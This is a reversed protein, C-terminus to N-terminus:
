YAVNVHFEIIGFSITDASARFAVPIAPSISPAHNTWPRPPRQSFPEVATVVSNASCSYGLVHPLILAAVPLTVLVTDNTDTLLRAADSSDATREAHENTFDPAPLKGFETRTGDGARHVQLM